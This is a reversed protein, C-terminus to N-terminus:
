VTVLETDLVIVTDLVDVRVGKYVTLGTIELVSDPDDLSDGEVTL